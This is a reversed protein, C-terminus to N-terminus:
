EITQLVLQSARCSDLEFAQVVLNLGSVSPPLAFSWEAEGNAASAQVFFRTAGGVGIWQSPCVGVQTSAVQTGIMLYVASGAHAHSARLTNTAGAVGPMFRTLELDHRPFIELYTGGTIGSNAGTAIPTLVQGTVGDYRRIYNQNDSTVLVHGTGPEFVLGTPTPPSAFTALFTGDPAYKLIRANGWSTVFAVGDGRFRIMRPRSLPGSKNFIGLFAGTQPDYSLIQNSQFSPVYLRGDPGFTMGADPGDLGGTEDQPTAPDNGVFVGLFAGTAGDYRLVRDTDFSAVYLHGDPGFIAATPGDLGGDEDQPTNPDDGVFTGLLTGTIGDFRLVRDQKEACVYLQGDPGYHMSQAGPVLGAADLFGLKAGTVPDFLHISETNYGSAMLCPATGAPPAAAAVSSVVIAVFLASAPCSRHM